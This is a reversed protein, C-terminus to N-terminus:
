EIGFYKKYERTIEDAIQPTLNKREPQLAGSMAKKKEAFDYFQLGSLVGAGYARANNNVYVDNSVVYVGGRPLGSLIEVIKDDAEEGTETFFVEVGSYVEKEGFGVSSSGDFVVIISDINGRGARWKVCQNILCNRASRLGGSLKSELFPVAHIFNYGDIIVIM